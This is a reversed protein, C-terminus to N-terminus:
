RKMIIESILHDDLWIDLIYNGLSLGSLDMQFNCIGESHPGLHKDSIISGMTNRMQARVQNANKPLYMEVSLPSTRVPNPYFNYTLGAWPDIDPSIGDAGVDDLLALNEDDNDLYYHDQPPYFFATAMFEHRRNNSRHQQWSRITEFIPYRYGKEYWRFTEVVFIVSDGALRQEISDPSIQLPANLKEYYAESIPRSNEAIYKITRTRLVHKLTDKSPLIMMGHSDARTEISGMAELELRNGYKGHSYYYSGSKNGYNVPFKFLLEPQRNHLQTTQNDFGWLLLSDNQFTYHYQTLHEMGTIVTDNETSYVLEYEDNIVNLQSFDWLVNEGTRGPDKYSVQQKYLIDGARLMNYQSQLSHQASLMGPIGLLVLLTLYFFLKM